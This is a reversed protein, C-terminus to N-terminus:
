NMLESLVEKAKELQNDFPNEEDYYAESDFECEVDPEIGIGHINRGNPTYYSSITVKVASGDEYPVIQQVIGKGFTTTGVLTGLGYDQIAGALVEAASASNMDVLVVLPIKLERKGNCKYEERHGYKDETYVIMGSPLLRRAVEVVATLSGGPNARLDLILGEMGSAKMTAMADTFQDVTVDGFETIQIYAMHNDLMEYKVTPTEVKRRTVPIELYDDEGDRVITLVVETNEKGKILAVVENLSLGYTSEGDVAYIIDNARLQAEEAPAGEIVGSIKPLSTLEDLGVYAGIGYYIGETQEMLDKLEEATYYESYPDELAELMGRYIGNELEEDTVESLYFYKDITNELLMMKEVVDENIASDEAFAFQEEEEKGSQLGDQLKVALGVVCLIVLSVAMGAIIGGVFLGGGGSKQTKGASAVNAQGRTKLSDGDYFYNSRNSDM